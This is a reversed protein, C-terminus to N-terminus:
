FDNKGFTYIFTKYPFSGFKKPSLISFSSFFKKKIDLKEGGGGKM